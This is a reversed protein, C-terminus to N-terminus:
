ERFVQCTEDESSETTKETSCYETVLFLLFTLTHYSRLFNEACFQSLGKVKFLCLM